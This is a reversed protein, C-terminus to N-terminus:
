SASNMPTHLYTLPAKLSVQVGMGSLQEGAPDEASFILAFTQGPKGLSVQVCAHPQLSTSLTLLVDYARLLRLSVITPLCAESLEHLLASWFVWTSIGAKSFGENAAM